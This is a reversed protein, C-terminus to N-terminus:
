ALKRQVTWQRVVEYLANGNSNTNGFTEVVDDKVTQLATKILEVQEQSLTFTMSLMTEREGSPISFEESFGEETVSEFGFDTMDFDQELEALETELESFDWESENTKNDALRLAKIQAESLDDARVCPVENMGLKKAAMLRGHGIVVVNNADIVLPQRFGFEKISNAIHEIQVDSHQKANKEYPILDNVKVNVIEMFGGVIGADGRGADPFIAHVCVRFSRCHGQREKVPYVIDYSIYSM